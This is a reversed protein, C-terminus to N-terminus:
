DDPWYFSKSTGISIAVENHFLQKTTIVIKSANTLFTPLEFPSRGNRRLKYSRIKEPSEVHYVLIAQAKTYIELKFRGEIGPSVVLQKNSLELAMDAEVEFWDLYVAEPRTSPATEIRLENQGPKLFKTRFSKEFLFDMQGYWECKGLPRDNIYFNVLHRTNKAGYLFVSLIAQKDPNLTRDFDFRFIDNKRVLKWVWHPYYRNPMTTEYLRNEEYHEIQKVYRVPIVKNGLHLTEDDEQIRLGHTKDIQLWYTLPYEHQEFLVPDVFFDIHGNNNKFPTCKIPIEQQNFFLKLNEIKSEGIFESFNPLDSYRIRTMGGSFVQIKYSNYCRTSDFRLYNLSLDNLAGDGNQFNESPTAAM